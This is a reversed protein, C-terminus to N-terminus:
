GLCFVSASYYGQTVALNNTRLFHAGSASTDFNLSGSRRKLAPCGVIPTNADRCLEKAYAMYAVATDLGGGLLLCDPIQASMEHGGFIERCADISYGQFPLLVIGVVPGASMAEILYEHRTGPVIEVNGALYNQCCNTFTRGPYAEQYADAVGSVFQNLLAGYGGKKNSPLSLKPLAIPLWIGNLANATRPDAKLKQILALIRKKFEAASPLSIAEAKVKLGVSLYHCIRSLVRGCEINSQSFHYNVNSDCVASKLGSFPIFRGKKDFLKRFIPNLEFSIEGRLIAEIAEMRDEVPVGALARNRFAEDQGLTLNGDKVPKGAKSAILRAAEPGLADILAEIDYLTFPSSQNM